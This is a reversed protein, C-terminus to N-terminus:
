NVKKRVGWSILSRKENLENKRTQEETKTSLKVTQSVLDNNIFGLKQTESGWRRLV